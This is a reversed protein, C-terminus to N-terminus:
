MKHFAHPMNNVLGRRIFESNNDQLIKIM